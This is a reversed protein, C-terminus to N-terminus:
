LIGTTIVSQVLWAVACGIILFDSGEFVIRIMGYLDHSEDTYEILRRVIVRVVVSLCLVLILAWGDLLGANFGQIYGDQYGKIPINELM